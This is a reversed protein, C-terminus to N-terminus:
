LDEVLGSKPILTSDIKILMNELKTYSIHDIVTGEIGISKSNLSEVIEVLKKFRNREYLVVKIGPNIIKKKAEEYYIFNVLLYSKEPSILLISNSDKGYFGTLYFVNEDKLILYRDFSQRKLTHNLKEIRKPYIGLNKERTNNDAM